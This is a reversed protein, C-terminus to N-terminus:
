QYVRRGAPTPTPSPAATPAEDAPRSEPASWASPPMPWPKSARPLFRQSKILPSRGALDLPVVVSGATLFGQLNPLGMIESDLVLPDIHREVEDIYSRSRGPSSRAALRETEVVGLRTAAWSAARPEKTALVITTQAAALIAEADHGYRAELTTRGQVGLLFSLPAPSPQAVAVSLHPLRDLSALDDLVCTTRPASKGGVDLLRSLLLDLWLTTVSRLRHQLPPPSTIFIWGSGQWAWSTASWRQTTEGEARLLRLAEGVLRVAALVATREPPSLRELMPACPTDALRTDLEAPHCLGFALDHATPRRLLLHTVIHRVAHTLTQQDRSAAPPDPVLAAALILADAPDLLEDAPTWYPCRVDLPNLLIDGRAAEYYEPVFTLTPDYVIAREGRAAIDDLVQRIIVATGTGVDGMLLLHNPDARPLSVVPHRRLIRAVRGPRLRITLGDARLRRRFARPTVFESGRIRRGHSQIWDRASGHLLVAAFALGAAQACRALLTLPGRGGYVADKFFAALAAPDVPARVWELRQAGAAKATESLVWSPAGHIVVQWATEDTVPQRGHRDVVYLLTFPSSPVGITRDVAARAASAFDLRQVPTWVQDYRYVGVTAGVLVSALSARTLWALWPRRGRATTM